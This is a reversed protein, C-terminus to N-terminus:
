MCPIDKNCAESPAYEPQPALLEDDGQGININSINCSLTSCIRPQCVEAGSSHHMCTYTSSFATCVGKSLLPRTRMLKGALLQGLLYLVERM